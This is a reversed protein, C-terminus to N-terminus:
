KGKYFRKWLESLKEWGYMAVFAVIFGALIAAIIMYWIIAQQIYQMYAMFATVTIGISLVLVLIDTPLKSLVGVGKFVQTVLSVIFALVGIVAILLTMNTLITEM